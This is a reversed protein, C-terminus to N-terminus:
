NGKAVFKFYLKIKQWLTPTSKEVAPTDSLGELCLKREAARRNTLGRVTRGQAKNWQMLADCAGRSDGANLRKVASSRCFGASGVNYAFSVFAARTKDSIPVKICPAIANAYEPLRKKLMESCQQPTFKDGVKAGGITEGYCWTIPRGTGITDVKATTWLGEWPMIFACAMTIVAAGGAGAKTSTKLAM